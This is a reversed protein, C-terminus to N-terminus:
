LESFNGGHINLNEAKSYKSTNSIKLFFDKFYCKKIREEKKM